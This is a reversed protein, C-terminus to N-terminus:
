FNFHRVVEDLQGASLEALSPTGFRGHTYEHVRGLGGPLKGAEVHIRALRQKRAAAGPQAATTTAVSAIWKRLYKRVDEFQEQPLLHYNAFRYRRKLAMWVKPFPKGSEKVVRAVLEQIEAAQEETIDGPGRQVEVRVQKRAPTRVNIEVHNRDGAVGVNNNGTIQVRAPPKKPLPKGRRRAADALDVIKSDGGTM